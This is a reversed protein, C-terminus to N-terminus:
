RAPQRARNGSLRRITSSRSAARPIMTLWSDPVFGYPATRLCEAPGAAALDTPARRLEAVLPMEVLDHDRDVALLRAMNAGNISIAQNGVGENLAALTPARSLLECHLLEQALEDALWGAHRAHHDGVLETGVASGPGPHTHGELMALVLADVVPCLIRVQGRPPALPDHLPDDLPECGGSVQPAEDKDVIRDGVEM